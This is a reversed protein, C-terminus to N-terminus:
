YSQITLAAKVGERDRELEILSLDGDTPADLLFCKGFLFHKKNNINWALLAHSAKRAPNSHPDGLMKHSLPFLISVVWVPQTVVSVGAM